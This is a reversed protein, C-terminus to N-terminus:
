IDTMQLIPSLSALKMWILADVKYDCYDKIQSIIFERVAGEDGSTGNLLCLEKLM